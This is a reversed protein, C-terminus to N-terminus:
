LSFRRHLPDAESRTIRFSPLAWAYKARDITGGVYENREVRTKGLVRTGLRGPTPCVRKLKAHLM